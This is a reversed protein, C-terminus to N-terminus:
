RFVVCCAVTMSEGTRLCESAPQARIEGSSGPNGTLVCPLDLQYGGILFDSGSNNTIFAEVSVTDNCMGSQGPVLELTIKFPAGSGPSQQCDYYANPCYVLTSNSACTTNPGLFTGGLNVCDTESSGWENSGPSIYSQDICCAGAPPASDPDDALECAGPSCPAPCAGYGSYGQLVAIVDDVDVFDCCLGNICVDEGIGYTCDSNNNCALGCNNFPFYTLTAAAPHTTCTGGAWAEMVNRVDELEVICYPPEIDGYLRCSGCAARTSDGAMIQGPMGVSAFIVIATTRLFLPAAFRDCPHLGNLRPSTRPTMPWRMTNNMHKRMDQKRTEEEAPGFGFRCRDMCIRGGWEPAPITKREDNWPNDRRAPVGGTAVIRRGEPSLNRKAGKAGM